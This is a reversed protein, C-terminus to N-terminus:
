KKFNSLKYKKERRNKDIGILVFVKEREIHQWVAFVLFDVNSAICFILRILKQGAHKM